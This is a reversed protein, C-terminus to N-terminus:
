AGELWEVAWVPVVAEGRGGVTPRVSVVPAYPMKSVLRGTTVDGKRVATRKFTGVRAATLLRCPRYTTFDDAQPM